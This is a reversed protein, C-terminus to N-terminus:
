DDFQGKQQLMWQTIRAAIQKRHDPNSFMHDAGSVIDLDIYDSNFLGAKHAETVPIMEDQDGHVILIPIRITKLTEPLSYARADEFFPRGLELNRNRSTFTVKGDQELDAIQAPSLFRMPDFGTLRGALAAVATVHPIQPAALVSIAAGMSHGALAIWSAGNQRILDVAAAMERIHKTISTEEFLGQSQGNGSFDFRLVISGADTLNGAIERLIATHRSCTFCHGLVAGMGTKKKPMHLTGSLLENDHNPFTIQTEM